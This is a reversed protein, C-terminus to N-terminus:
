TKPDKQSKHNPIATKMQNKYLNRTQVTPLDRQFGKADMIKVIVNNNIEM